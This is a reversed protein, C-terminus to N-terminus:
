DETMEGPLGEAPSTHLTGADARAATRELNVQLRGVLNALLSVEEASFGELAHDKLTDMVARGAPLRQKAKDTLSILRSRKDAPDPLRRVLGDREMRTLMQAMSPQEVQVLRALEAQSLSASQNLLALVPIQGMAFDLERLPGDVLRAFTRHVQGIIKLPNPNSKM